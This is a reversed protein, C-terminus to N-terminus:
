SLTTEAGRMTKDFKDTAQLVAPTSIAGRAQLSSRCFGTYDSIGICRCKVVEGKNRAISLDFPLRLLNCAEIDLGPHETDAANANTKM